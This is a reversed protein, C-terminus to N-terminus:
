TVPSVLFTYVDRVHFYGNDGAVFFNVAVGDTLFTTAITKKQSLNHIKNGASVTFASHQQFTEPVWECYLKAQQALLDGNQSILDHGLQWGPMHSAVACATCWVALPRSKTDPSKCRVPRRLFCRGLLRNPFSSTFCPTM